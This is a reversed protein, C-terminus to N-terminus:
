DRRCLYLFSELCGPAGFAKHSVRWNYPVVLAPKVATDAEGQGEALGEAPHEAVDGFASLYKARFHPQAFSIQAFLYGPKLVRSVAACMSAADAKTAPNPDWPSGEDCMLADMAAKDLVADFAEDALGELSLMDAVTWTMGPRAKNRERMREIVVASFDISTVNHYGADYLDSSFSSNGCGVVLISPELSASPLHPLLIDRVADFNALWEYEEEVGFREEWYSKKKFEVNSDIAAPGQFTEPRVPGAIFAEAGTGRTPVSPGAALHARLAELAAGGLETELLSWDPSTEEGDDDM